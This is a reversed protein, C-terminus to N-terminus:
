TRFEAEMQKQEKQAALGAQLAKILAVVVIIKVLWGRLLNTPDALAFIVQVGVFLALATVVPYKEVFFALVIFVIAVSIAGGHFLMLFRQATEEAEQVQAADVPGGRGVERQIQHHLQSSEVFFFIGQVITWLIGVFLLTNRAQRLHKNRAAQALSGLKPLGEVDGKLEEPPRGLPRMGHQPDRSGPQLMDDSM